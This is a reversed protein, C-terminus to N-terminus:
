GQVAVVGAFRRLLSQARSHDAGRRAFLRLLTRINAQQVGQNRCHNVTRHLAYVGLSMLVKMDESMGDSVLLFTEKSRANSPIGLGAPCPQSVFDWFVACVAYHQLQDAGSGCGLVCNRCCKGQARVLGAMRHDTVWGNWLARFYASLVRPACWRSLVDFARLARRGLIGSVGPLDWKALKARVRAEAYYPPAFRQAILKAAARQFGM